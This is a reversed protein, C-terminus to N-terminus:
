GDAGIHPPMAGGVADLHAILEGKVFPHAVEVAVRVALRDEVHRRQGAGIAHAEGFPEDGAAILRALRDLDKVAVSALERGAEIRQARVGLGVVRAAEVEVGENFREEALPDFDADLRGALM